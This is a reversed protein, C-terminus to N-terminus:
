KEEVLVPNAASLVDSQYIADPDVLHCRKTHFAGRNGPLLEPVETKCLDLFRLAETTRPLGSSRFQEDAWSLM